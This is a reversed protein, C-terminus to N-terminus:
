TQTPGGQNSVPSPEEDQSNGNETEPNLAIAPSLGPSDAFRPPLIEAFTELSKLAANHLSCFFPDLGIPAAKPAPRNDLRLNLDQFVIGDNRGIRRPALPAPSEACGPCGRDFLILGPGTKITPSVM